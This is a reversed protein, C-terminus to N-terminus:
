RFHWSTCPDFEIQPHPSDGTGLSWGGRNGRAKCLVMVGPFSAILNYQASVGYAGNLNELM